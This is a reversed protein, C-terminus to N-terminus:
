EPIMRKYRGRSEQVIPLTSAEVMASRGTDVIAVERWVYRLHPPGVWIRRREYRVSGSFVEYLKLAAQEAEYPDRM